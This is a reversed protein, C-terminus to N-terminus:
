VGPDKEKKPPGQNEFSRDMLDGRNPLIQRVMLKRRPLRRRAHPLIPFGSSKNSAVQQFGTAPLDLLQM